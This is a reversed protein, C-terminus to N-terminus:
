LGCVYVSDLSVCLWVFVLVHLLICACVGLLVDVEGVRGWVVCGSVYICEFWLVYKSSEGCVGACVNCVM